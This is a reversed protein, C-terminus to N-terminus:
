FLYPKLYHEYGPYETATRPDFAWHFEFEYAMSRALGDLDPFLTAHTLNMNYLERMAQDRIGEALVFKKVVPEPTQYGGLIEEVSVDLRAPVLFTGSQATLRKNSVSPNAIVVFPLNGKLFYEEFNGEKWLSMSWADVEGMEAIAVTHRYPIIQATNLAWVAADGKARELAFFAAVYPSWTLDLLRTPAGHHQLLALWQFSDREPPVHDL